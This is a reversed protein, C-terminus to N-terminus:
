NRKNFRNEFNDPKSEIVKFDNSTPKTKVLVYNTDKEFVINHRSKFVFLDWHELFLEHNGKSLIVELYENRNITGIKKNNLGIWIKGTLAYFFDNSDNFFIVRCTDEAVSERLPYDHISEMKKITSCSILILLFAFFMLVINSKKNM